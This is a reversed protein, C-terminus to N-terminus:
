GHARGIQAELAITDIHEFKGVGNTALDGDWENVNKVNSFLRVVLQYIVPRTTDGSDDGDDTFDKTEHTEGCATLLLALLAAVILAHKLQVVM